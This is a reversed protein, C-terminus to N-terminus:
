MEVEHKVEIRTIRNNHEDLRVEHEKVLVKIEHLADTNREIAGIMDRQNAEVTVQLPKMMSRVVWVLGGAGTAVVSCILAIGETMSMSEM